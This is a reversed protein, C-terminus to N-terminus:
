ERGGAAVSADVTSPCGSGAKGEARAAWPASSTSTSSVRRAGAGSAPASPRASDRMCRTLQTPLSRARVAPLDEGFKGALYKQVKAPDIPQDKIVARVGDETNKAPVPRGCVEVWFEEGLGTKRPPGGGEPAKPPGFIGLTRGKSQANLGAVGKGLTLAADPEYGLREAVVAAWLTLVPARNISVTNKTM